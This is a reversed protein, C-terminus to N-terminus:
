PLILVGTGFRITTTQAAVYAFWILPDPIGGRRGLRDMRGDSSGRYPTADPGRPMIVHEPAWLSEFGAQEAAQALAVASDPDPFGTSSFVIGWKV